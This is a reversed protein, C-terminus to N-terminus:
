RSIYSSTSRSPGRLKFKKLFPQELCESLTIRKSPEYRLMLSIMQFMEEWDVNGRHERPIYRLLPKVKKRVHRGSSSEEDWRLKGKSFYKLKCKEAMKQPIPGLIREMMALHEYSSHTDFMMYGMALEFIICGVSWVDCSQDWGLEMVVEPARYHRTQVISSHHEHDFTTSGFDILRIQPNKLIRVKKGEDRDHETLYDKFYDSNHFLINEPKLDTHTLRNAHLFSVSLCLEYAIQRVHEIPYATYNNDKLFDFVSKGLLEFAICKHGHYDFWDYMEVCLNEGKPDYKALKSLVNIELKAADRYKKVNKIIKIALINGKQVDECKVVKGFTGEGLEAMIKYRNQLVDGIKYLLHGEEDDHVVSGSQKARRRSSRGSTSKRSKYADTGYRKGRERAKKSAGSKEGRERRDKSPTYYKDKPRREGSYLDSKKEVYPGPQREQFHESQREGYQGSHRESYRVSLRDGYQSSHGQRESFQQRRNENEDQIEKERREKVERDRRAEERRYHGSRTEYRNRGTESEGDDRRRQKRDGAEDGGERKRKGVDRGTNRDRRREDTPSWSRHRSRRSMDPSARYM